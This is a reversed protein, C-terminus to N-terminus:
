ERMCGIHMGIRLASAGLSTCIRRARGGTSLRFQPFCTRRPRSSHMWSRARAGPSHCRRPRDGGASRGGQRARAGRGVRDRRRRGSRDLADIRGDADPTGVCTRSRCSGPCASRSTSSAGAGRAASRTRSSSRCTSARVARPGRRPDRRGLRRPRGPAPDRDLRSAPGVNCADIGGNACVFGHADRHHAVGNAMRVVRRAERLVVEVQRPDRDWREAFAVAEPRPEITTLDVIAGEAKSVVKQTVVLVDDDRLPLAGPTGSSPTASSPRRPRRGDRDRPHGDLALVEIGGTPRGIAPTLRCSPRRSRDVRRAAPRRAHRPRRTLPGDSSSSPPARGRRRPQSAGGSERGFAVDIVTPPRRPPTRALGHRDTGGAVLPGPRRARDSAASEDLPPSSTMSPARRTVFPLDRAPRAVRRRAGPSRAARATASGTTSARSASGSPDARRGDRRSRLVRPRPQRRPRGTSTAIAHARRRVTSCAACSTTGSRPTSPRAWARRRARSRHSRSSRRSACTPRPRHRPGHPPRQPRAPEAALRARGATTAGHDHRDRPGVPRAGRDGARAGADVPRARLWRDGPSSGPWASRARRRPRAVRADPRGAGQAGQRRRDRLGRRGSRGRAPARRAGRGHRGRGPDSRAVRVPEVARHRHRRRGALAAPGRADAAADDIGDFRVSAFRPSRTAIRRLVGPLRALRRRDPGATRVPADTM